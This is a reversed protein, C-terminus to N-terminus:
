IMSFDFLHTFIIDIIKSSIKPFGKRLKGQKTLAISELTTDLKRGLNLGFGYMTVTIGDSSVNRFIVRYRGENFELKFFGKYRNTENTNIFKKNSYSVTIM